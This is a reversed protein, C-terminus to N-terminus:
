EQGPGQQLRQIMDVERIILHVFSFFRATKCSIQTLLDIVYVYELFIYIHININVGLLLLPLNWELVIEVVHRLGYSSLNWGCEGVLPDGQLGDTGLCLVIVEPKYNKLALEGVRRIVLALNTDCLGPQLPVNIAHNKGSRKGGAITGGTGPFFGPYHVHFSLTM